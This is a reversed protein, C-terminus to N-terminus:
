LAGARLGAVLGELLVIVGDVEDVTVDARERVDAPTEPGVVGISLGAVTGSRRLDRVADMADLDTRDDGVFVLGRLGREAALQRVATGKNLDVPPRVEVVRRGRTARLGLEAAVRRATAVVSMEIGEPDPAARYHISATAGKAEVVVGPISLERRLRATAASVTELYPEVLPSVVLAGGELREMGHNGLYVVGDLGVMRRAGRADRGSVVAVVALRQTLLALAERARPEVVAASPPSVIRSITGDIDTM